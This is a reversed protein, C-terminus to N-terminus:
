FFCSNWCYPIPYIKIQNDVFQKFHLASKVKVYSLSQNQITYMNVKITFLRNSVNSRMALLQNIKQFSIGNWNTM